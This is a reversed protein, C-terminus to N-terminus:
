GKRYPKLSRNIMVFYSDSDADSWWRYQYIERLRTNASINEFEDMEFDVQGGSTAYSLIKRKLDENYAYDEQEENNDSDQDESHDSTVYGIGWIEVGHDPFMEKKVEEQEKEEDEEKYHKMLNSFREIVREKQYHNPHILIKEGEIVKQYEPDSLSDEKFLRNVNYKLKSSELDYIDKEDQSEADFNYSYAYIKNQM